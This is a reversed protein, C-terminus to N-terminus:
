ILAEVSVNVIESPVYSTHPVIGEDVVWGIGVHM